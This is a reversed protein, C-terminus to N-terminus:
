VDITYKLINCFEAKKQEYRCVTKNESVKLLPCAGGFCVPLIDCSKCKENLMNYRTIWPAHRKHDINLEGNIEVKGVKNYEEDLKLTCKLITGDYDIIFMNPKSAYCLSHFPLAFIESMDNKLELESLVSAIEKKAEELKSETIVDMDSDNRGGWKQINIYAVSFRSDDFNQKIFLYFDKAQAMVEEDFNSRIVFKFDHATSKAYRMNEIIVDFTPKGDKQCKRTDHTAALGDIAVQFFKCGVEMLAEFRDPTVLYFNTTASVEFPVSYKRCVDNAKKLFNIVDDFNLFPEGGFLSIHIKSHQKSELAKELYLLISNYVEETMHDDRLDEYCYVCRFNCQRTPLITLQLTNARVIVQEYAYLAMEYEDQNSNAFVGNDLFISHMDDEENYDYIFSKDNEAIEKIKSIFPEEDINIIAGTLTNAVVYTNNDKKEILTYKSSVVKRVNEM